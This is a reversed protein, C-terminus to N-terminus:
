RLGSGRCASERGSRIRRPSDGVLVALGACGCGTRRRRQGARRCCTPCRRASLEAAGTGPDRLPGRAGGGRLADASEDDPQAQSCCKPRSGRSSLPSRATSTRPAGVWCPRLWKPSRVPAIWAATRTSSRSGCGGPWCTRWTCAGEAAAAYWPRAGELYVLRRPSRTGAARPPGGRAMALVESILSGYRDLLHRVGTRSAPRLAHGVHETQNVLAFYGDAGM